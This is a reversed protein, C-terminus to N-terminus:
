EEQESLCRAIQQILAGIDYAELPQTTLNKGGWHIHAKYSDCQRGSDSCVIAVQPYSSLLPSLKEEVEQKVRPIWSGAFALSGRQSDISM